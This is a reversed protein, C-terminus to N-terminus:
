CPRPTVFVNQSDFSAIRAALKRADRRPVGSVASAKAIPFEVHFAAGGCALSNEAWIRGNHTQVLAQAIPLGLGMGEARTTFSCRFLNGLNEKAIGPGTDRVSVRVASSDHSSAIYVLRRAAGSHQIADISNNLLNVLVRTLTPENGAIKPLKPAFRSHLQVGHRVAHAGALNIADWTIANLDVPWMELNHSCLIGRLARVFDRTRLDAERIDQLIETLEGLQEPNSKLIRLATETNNLITTLPQNLEQALMARGAHDIRATDTQWANSRAIRAQRDVLLDAPSFISQQRQIGAMDANVQTAQWEIRCM